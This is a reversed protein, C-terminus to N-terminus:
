DESSKLVTCVYSVDWFFGPFMWVQGYVLEQSGKQDGCSAMKWGPPNELIGVVWGTTTGPM